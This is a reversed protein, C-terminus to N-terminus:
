LLRGHQDFLRLTMAVGSAGGGAYLRIIRAAPQIPTIEQLSGADSGPCQRREAIEWETPQTFRLSTRRRGRTRGHRGALIQAGM